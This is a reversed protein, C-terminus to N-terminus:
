STRLDSFSSLGDLTKPIFPRNKMSPCWAQTDVMGPYGYMAVRRQFKKKMESCKAQTIAHKNKDNGGVIVQLGGLVVYVPVAEGETSKYLMGTCAQGKNHRERSLLGPQSFELQVPAPFEYRVPFAEPKHRDDCPWKRVEVLQRRFKEKWTQPYDTEGVEEGVSLCHDFAGGPVAEPHDAKPRKYPEGPTDDAM